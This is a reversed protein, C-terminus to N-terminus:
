AKYGRVSVRIFSHLDPAQLLSRGELRGLVDECDLEFRERAM